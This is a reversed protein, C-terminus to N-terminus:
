GRLQQCFFVASLDELVKMFLDKLAGLVGKSFYVSVEVTFAKFALETKAILFCGDDARDLGSSLGKFSLEFNLRRM